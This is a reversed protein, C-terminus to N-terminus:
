DARVRRDGRPHRVAHLTGSQPQWGALPIRPTSGSRSRTVAARPHVTVAHHSASATPDEAAVLQLEVLDVGTVAETVPHEVQLRTNMELFWFRDPDAADVLFEVTGAGVYGIAHGAARAAAYM